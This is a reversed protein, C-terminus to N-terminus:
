HGVNEVRTKAMGRKVCPKLERVPSGALTGQLPLLTKAEPGSSFDREVRRSM